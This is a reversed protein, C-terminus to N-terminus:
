APLEVPAPTPINPPNSSRVGTIWRDGDRTLALVEGLAPVEAAPRAGTLTLVIERIVGRHAVVLAGLAGSSVIRELGRQVRARFAARLEGDPYEFGSEPDLWQQYLVPDAADIEALSLGEWRGFHIESFDPEIRLAADGTLLAASQLARRAPSAVVLDVVQGILASRARRVQERGAASLNPDGSGILHQSSDGDTEGHRVLVIRRLPSNM